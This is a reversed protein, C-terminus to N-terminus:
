NKQIMGILNILSNLSNQDLREARLLSPSGISIALPARNRAASRPAKTDPWPRTISPPAKTAPDQYHREM